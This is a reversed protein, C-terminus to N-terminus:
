GELLPVDGLQPEVEAALETFTRVVLFPRVREAEDVDDVMANVGDREAVTWGREM